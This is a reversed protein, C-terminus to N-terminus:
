ENSTFNVVTNTCVPAANAIAGSLRRREGESLEDAITVTLTRQSPNETVTFSQAGLMRVFESFGEPTCYALVNSEARMLRDRRVETELDSRERDSVKERESLGYDEATSIYCERELEDLLSFAEDLAASYVSLEKELASGEGTNYLGIPALKDLMSELSNSM